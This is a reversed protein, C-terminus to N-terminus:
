AIAILEDIEDAAEPLVKKVYDKFMKERTILKAKAEKRWLTPVGLSPWHTYEIGVLALQEAMRKKSFGKKRSVPNKRIDALHTVGSKRLGAVFEEIDSGEYGVTFLKM